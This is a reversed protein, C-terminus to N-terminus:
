MFVQPLKEKIKNIFYDIVAEHKQIETVDIIISYSNKKNKLYVTVTHPSSAEQSFITNVVIFVEFDIGVEKLIRTRITRKILTVFSTKKMFDESDKFKNM